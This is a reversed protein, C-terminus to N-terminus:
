RRRRALDLDFRSVRSSFILSMSRLDLTLDLGQSGDELFLDLGELLAVLQGRTM